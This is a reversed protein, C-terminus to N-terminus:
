AQASKDLFRRLNGAAKRRIAGKLPPSWGFLKGAPGLAMGAWKWLDFRDVHRIILNDKFEFSADIVNHVKRGTETFTYDAEWHASGRADDAAVDRFEMTFGSARKTLMRWMAGAQPGHLDPFVPDTFWVDAHYCAVMAEADRRQFSRYFRDVLEANPHM